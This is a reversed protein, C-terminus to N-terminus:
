KTKGISEKTIWGLIIWRGENPLLNVDTSDKRVTAKHVGTYYMVSAQSHLLVTRLESSSNTLTINLEAEGGMKPGEGDM